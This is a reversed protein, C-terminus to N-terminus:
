HGWWGSIHQSNSRNKGATTAGAWGWNESGGEQSERAEVQPGVQTAPVEEEGKGNNECGRRGEHCNRSGAITDWARDKMATTLSPTMEGEIVDRREAVEQVLIMQETKSFNVIRKGGKGCSGSAM